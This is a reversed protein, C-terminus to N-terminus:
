ILSNHMSEKGSIMRLNPRGIKSDSHCHKLNMAIKYMSAYVWFKGFVRINSNIDHLILYPLMNGDFPDIDEGQIQAPM